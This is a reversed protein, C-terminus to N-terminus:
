GDWEAPLAAQDGGSVDRRQDREPEDTEGAV